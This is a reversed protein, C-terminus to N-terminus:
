PIPEGTTPDFRVVPRPGTAADFPYRNIPTLTPAPPFGTPWSVLVQYWAGAERVTGPAYALAEVLSDIAALAGADRVKLARLGAVAAVQDNTDIRAAWLERVAALPSTM